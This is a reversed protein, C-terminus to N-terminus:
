ASDAIGAVQSARLSPLGLAARQLLQPAVEGVPKFGFFVLRRLAREIRALPEAPAETSLESVLAEFTAV